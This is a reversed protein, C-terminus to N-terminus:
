RSNAGGSDFGPVWATVEARARVEADLQCLVGASGLWVRHILLYSPPLNLKLGIAFDGSRPDNIRLFQERMWTRTYHFSEHRLPSIFPGLYALLDQANIVIGSKIFGEERLGAVVAVADHEDIAIRLIRGITPPFGDPLRATAGYDFVALKGEPTMRYNGPHPDAHLLGARAPGSMLFRLYLTGARDRESQTGNAIIRSLPIGDVWESVIVRPGAALVHPIVFDPDGEYAAAFARQAQSEHLYDLEEAVRDKLEALLPKIDLGPILSGFVRGMRSMQNLDAMLAKGAGPYQIKVAVDRGDRSIARHVQGISAAAAPTDNFERFRNRWDSGLEQGLVQHVTEIPMPPAADQLKTLAERYPGALEEPFAAEFISLAQGVKMAGGKLDGLVRFLQEATRAQIQANVAEAPRGGLKKGLGFATRGAFSVPLSAMRATRQLARQPMAAASSQSHSDLGGRGADPLKDADDSDKDPRPQEGM